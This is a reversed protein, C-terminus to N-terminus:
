GAYDVGSATVWQGEQVIDNAGLWCGHLAGISVFFNVDKNTEPHALIGGESACSVKADAWNMVGVRAAYCM